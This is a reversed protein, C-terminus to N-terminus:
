THPIRIELLPAFKSQDSDPVGIPPTTYGPFIRINGSGPADLRFRLTPDLELADRTNLLPPLVRTKPERRPLQYIAHSLNDIITQLTDTSSTARLQGALTYLEDSALDSPVTSIFQDIFEPTLAIGNTGSEQIMSYFLSKVNNPQQEMNLLAKELKALGPPPNAVDYIEGAAESGFYGGPIGVLLGCIIIGWGATELDLAANCILYSTLLGSAFGGAATALVKPRQQSTATVLQFGTVIIFLAPGGWKLGNRVFPLARSARTAGTAALGEATGAVAVEGPNAVESVIQRGLAEVLSPPEGALPEASAFSGNANQTLRFKLSKPIAEGPPAANNVNDIGQSFKVEIESIVTGDPKVVSNTVEVSSHVTVTSSSAATGGRKIDEVVTKLDPETVVENPNKNSSGSSIQPVYTKFLNRISVAIAPNRICIQNGGRVFEPGIISDFNDLKLNNKELFGQFIKWYHENALKILGENTYSGVGESLYQKWRLDTTLDLIRGLLSRQFTAVTVSPTSGALSGARTTAYQKAVAPDNTLYLGDGFDHIAGGLSSPPVGTGEGRYWTEIQRQIIKAQVGNKQQLTHTLEHALLQKGSVSEPLYKGSGFFIDNGVTFAQANLERNLEVASSDTHIKVGSFDKGFRNEMFSKTTSDMRRGNGQLATIRSSLTDSVDAGGESKTQIIQLDPLRQVPPETMQMVEDAIRDAEQEYKDGPESIRLKTQLMEGQKSQCESCTGSNGCACRRQLIGGQSLSSLSISRWGQAREKGQQSLKESGLGLSSYGAWGLARNQSESEPESQTKNQKDKTQNDNVPAHLM